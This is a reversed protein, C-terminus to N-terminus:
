VEIWLYEVESMVKFVVDIMFVIYGILNFGNVGNFLLVCFGVWM